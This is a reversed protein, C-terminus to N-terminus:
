NVYRFGSADSRTLGIERDGIRFLTDRAAMPRWNRLDGKRRLDQVVLDGNTDFGVGYTVLANGVAWGTETTNVVADEQSALQAGAAPSAAAVLLVLALSVLSGTPKVVVGRSPTIRRTADHAASM